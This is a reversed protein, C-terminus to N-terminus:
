HPHMFKIPLKFNEKINSLYTSPIVALGKKRM